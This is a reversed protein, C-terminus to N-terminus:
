LRLFGGGQGGGGLGGPRGVRADGTTLAVCGSCAFLGDVSGQQRHPFGGPVAGRELKRGSFCGFHSMRSATTILLRRQSIDVGPVAAGLATNEYTTRLARAYLTRGAPAGM